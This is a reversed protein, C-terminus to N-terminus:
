GIEKLDGHSSYTVGMVSINFDVPFAFSWEDLNEDMTITQPAKLMYPVVVNQQAVAFPMVFLFALVTLAIVKKM